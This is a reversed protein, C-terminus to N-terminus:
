WEVAIGLATLFVDIQSKNIKTTGGIGSFVARRLDARGLDAGRLDAGGLDAGRLDARGLNAGRLNAKGLIAGYLDAGGLNAGRLDAGYLDAGRLSVKGLDTGYLNAGYLNVKNKVAEEVAEKYTTKTSSFVVEGTFRNKIEFKKEEKQRKNFSSMWDKMIDRALEKDLNFQKKLRPLAAFMNTEGSKRLEDLYLYYTENYLLTVNKM